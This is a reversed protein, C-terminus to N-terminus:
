PKLPGGPNQCHHGATLEWPGEPRQLTLPPVFCIAMRTCHKCSDKLPSRDLQVNTQLTYWVLPLVFVWSSRMVTVHVQPQGKAVFWRSTTQKVKRLPPIYVIPRLNERHEATWDTLELGAWAPRREPRLHSPRVAVVMACTFHLNKLVGYFM